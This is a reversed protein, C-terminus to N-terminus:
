LWSRLVYGSDDGPKLSAGSEAFMGLLQDIKSKAAVVGKYSPGKSFEDPLVTRM